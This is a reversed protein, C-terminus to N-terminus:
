TAQLELGFANFKSVLYGLKELCLGKVCIIPEQLDIM